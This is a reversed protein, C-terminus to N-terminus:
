RTASVANGWLVVSLALRDLRTRRPFVNGHEDLPREELLRVYLEHKCGSWTREALKMHDKESSKNVVPSLRKIQCLQIPRKRQPDRTVVLVLLICPQRTM